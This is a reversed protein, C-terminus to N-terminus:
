SRWDINLFNSVPNLPITLVERFITIFKDLTMIHLVAVFSVDHFFYFLCGIRGIWGVRRWKVQLMLDHLPNLDNEYCGHDCKKRFLNMM